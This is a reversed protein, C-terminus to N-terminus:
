SQPVVREQLYQFLFQVNWEYVNAGALQEYQQPVPLQLIDELTHQSTKCNSVYEIMGTLYSRMHQIDTASGVPGHGPILADISFSEVKTLIKLWEQPQGSGMWAHTNVLVLDGSYLVKADPVYMFTDSATHGGGYHYIEVQRASGEIVLKDELLINPPTLELLDLSNALLQKDSLDYVLAQWMCENTEIAIREKLHKVYSALGAKVEEKSRGKLAEIMMNKTTATSIITTDKFTVNGNTHDGHYHSNIVYKVTNGTLEEAAARLEAAAQPLMFTDFILTEEGLNVFGANGLAGKGDKVIAAYVGPRVEECTFYHYTM